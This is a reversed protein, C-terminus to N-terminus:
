RTRDSTGRPGSGDQSDTGTPRTRARAFAGHREMLLVTAAFTAALLGILGILELLLVFESAQFDVLGTVSVNLGLVLVLVSVTLLVAPLARLRGFALSVLFATLPVCALTVPLAQGILQDPPGNLATLEAVTAVPEFVVLSAAALGIFMLVYALNYSLWSGASPLSVLQGYSWGILSGCVLGAVLMPVLSFWIDSIMIQHVVTFIAVAVIGGIAGARALTASPGAASPAFAAAGGAPLGATREGDSRM